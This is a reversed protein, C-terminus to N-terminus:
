RYDELISTQNFAAFINHWTPNSRMVKVKQASTLITLSPAFYMVQSIGTNLAFFGYSQCKHHFSDDLVFSYLLREIIPLM